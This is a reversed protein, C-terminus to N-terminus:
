DPSMIFGAGLRSISAGDGGGNTVRLPRVKLRVELFPKGGVGPGFYWVLEDNSVEETLSSFSCSITGLALASFLFLFGLCAVLGAFFLGLATPATM